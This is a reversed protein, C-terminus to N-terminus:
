RGSLRQRCFTWHCITRRSSLTRGPERLQFTSGPKREGIKYPLLILHVTSFLKKKRHGRQSRLISWEAFLKAVPQLQFTQQIPFHNYQYCLPFFLLSKLHCSLLCPPLPAIVSKNIAAQLTLLIASSLIGIINVHPQLFNIVAWINQQMSSTPIRFTICCIRFM